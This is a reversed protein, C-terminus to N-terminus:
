NWMEKWIKFKSKNFNDIPQELDLYWFMFLMTIEQKNM